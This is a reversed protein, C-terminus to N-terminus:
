HLLLEEYVYGSVQLLTGEYHKMLESRVAYRRVAKRQINYPRVKFPELM